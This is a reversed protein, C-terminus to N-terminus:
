SEADPNEWKEKTIRYCIHPMVRGKYVKDIRDCPKMGLREAVKMSAFNDEKIIAWIEPLSLKRFGYDVVAQAAESAYGKHWSKDSFVYGAEVVKKDRVMQYTLGCQGIFSGDKRLRVALLGLGDEERYRRIQNAIWRDVEDDSFAHGWAYMVDKNQLIPAIHKRDSERIRSLSLRETMIDESFAQMVENYIM